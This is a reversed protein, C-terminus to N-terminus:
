CAGHCVTMEGQRASVLVPPLGPTLVGPVPTGDVTASATAVRQWGKTYAKYLVGPAHNVAREDIRQIDGAGTWDVRVAVTDSACVSRGDPDFTCVEVPVKATASAYNLRPQVAVTAADTGGLTEGTERTSAGDASVDYRFQRYILRPGASRGFGKEKLSSESAIVETDTCRQGPGPDPCTTWSAIGFRGAFRLSTVPGAQVPVALLLQTLATAGVSMACLRGGFLM